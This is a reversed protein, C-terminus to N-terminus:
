MPGPMGGCGQLCFGKLYWPQTDCIEHCTLQQKGIDEMVPTVFIDWWTQIVKDEYAHHGSCYASLNCTGDDDKGEVASANDWSDHCNGEADFCVQDGPPCDFYGGFWGHKEPIQRYCRQGGHLMGTSASDKCYNEAGAYFSEDSSQACTRQVERDEGWGNQQIVHTLEHALLFKGQSTEPNYKGTNFYIDRGHTFAQAGLERNMEVADADTHITVDSFDYGFSASMDSLTKGSMSRGTGSSQEIKASTHASATGASSGAESKRQMNAPGKKMDEEMEPDVQRQVNGEKEKECEPCMRQIEPKTQIEKDRRMREENTGLKEEEKDSSLRQIGSIKKQQILSGGGNSRNVVNGAVADAEKEYVDGPQNVSLKTQFFSSSGKEGTDNSAGHFFANGSSQQEQEHGRPNRHRYTRLAYSM